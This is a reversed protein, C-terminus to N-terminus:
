VPAFHTILNEQPTQRGSQRDTMVKTTMDVADSVGTSSQMFASNWLTNESNRLYRLSSREILLLFIYGIDFIRYNIRPKTQLLIRLENASQLM